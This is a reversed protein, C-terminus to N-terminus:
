ARIGEKVGLLGFYRELAEVSPIEIREGTVRAYQGDRLEQVARKVADVDLGVRTALEIPTVELSVFAAAPSSGRAERALKLLAAVVKSQADVLMTIEIQDEAERLRRILQKVIRAAVTPNQELMTQLTGQDLALASGATLAVATSSRPAGALLASEGFLDGPRLVMLSRGEGRVTKMLRVRGEQLFYAETGPEGERFIVEGADFAVGFRANLREPDLTPDAPPVKPSTM